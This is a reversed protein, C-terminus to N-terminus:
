VLSSIPVATADARGLSGLGFNDEITRLLSFHTYMGNDVSGAKTGKGLIVTYVRNTNKYDDEDFTIVFATDKALVPDSMLKPLLGQLWKSAYTVDTDHGDNKMDPTYFSYQPVKGAALDLPLQQEANVIKACWEPNKVVHEFSIFPNHWRAYDGQRHGVYCNGPYKEEYAKWTVGKAELLDVISRGAVTVDEDDNVGGNDGFTLEIYNPQSPHFLSYYNTLLLGQKTLSSFYPDAIVTDYAMNEFVITFVRDFHKGPVFTAAATPSAVAPAADSVTFLAPLTAFIAWWLKNFHM